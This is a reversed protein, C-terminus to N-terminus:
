EDYHETGHCNLCLPELNDPNNDGGNTVYIKHHIVINYHKDHGCRNCILNEIGFEYIWRQKLNNRTLENWDKKQSKHKCEVSCHVNKRVRLRCKAITFKKDCIPCEVEVKERCTPCTSKISEKSQLNAPMFSINCVHCIKEVKKRKSNLFCDKSCYFTKNRNDFFKKQFSIGCGNCIKTEM